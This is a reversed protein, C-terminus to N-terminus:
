QNFQNYQSSHLLSDLSIAAGQQQKSKEAAEMFAVIELTEAAPVPAIGTKFFRALQVVLPRYGEWPGIPAIGKTGFATGGFDGAGTRIGRFTGIRNDKWTGVVMDTDATYFRSVTKCGTGMVTFLAEVGHVGYWFLDPHTPEIYAPSYTDAGTLKGIKGAAIEQASNMFRLSSASFVPTNYHRAADFVAIADALSAAIPKDVFLPKRAKLVPLAQELHLRGDNTELLVADVKTLLESISDVITVGLTKIESTYGPIAKVSSAIDRSGQPYAAVVRFGAVDAAAAPDNLIKTFAVSHETDLGIIGLRIEGATYNALAPLSLAIGAGAIATNKIFSRRDHQQSM